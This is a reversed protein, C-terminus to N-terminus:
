PQGNLKVTENKDIGFLHVHPKTIKGELDIKYFIAVDGIVIDQHALFELDIGPAIHMRIRKDNFEPVTAAWGQKGSDKDTARIILETSALEVVREEDDDDQVSSPVEKLLNPSLQMNEGIILHADEEKKAPKVFEIANKISNPNEKVAETITKLLEETDHGTIDRGAQLTINIQQQINPKESNPFAKEAALKLAIILTAVIVWGVINSRKDGDAAELNKYEVGSQDEINKQFVALLYYQIKEKLSGSELEDVYVVLNKVTLDDFLKELIKPTIISVGELALLSNAVEAIPIKKKNSYYIDQIFEIEM